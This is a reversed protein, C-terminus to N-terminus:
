AERVLIAYRGTVADRTFTVALTLGDWTGDEGGTPDSDLLYRTVTKGVVDGAVNAHYSTVKHALDVVAQAFNNM